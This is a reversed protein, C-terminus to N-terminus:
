KLVYSRIISAGFERIRDPTVGKTNIKAYYSYHRLISKYLDDNERHIMYGCRTHGNQTVECVQILGDVCGDYNYFRKLAMGWYLLAEHPPIQFYRIKNGNLFWILHYHRNCSLNQETVWVYHPSLGHNCLRRRYEEIFYQFCNNDPTSQLEEPFRIVMPVTMVQSHCSLSFDLREKIRDLIEKRYGPNPGLYKQLQYYGSPDNFLINHQM